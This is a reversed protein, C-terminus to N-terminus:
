HAHPVLHVALHSTMQRHSVLLEDGEGRTDSKAVVFGGRRQYRSMATLLTQRCDTRGTMREFPAERHCNTRCARHATPARLTVPPYAFSPGRPSVPISAKYCASLFAAWRQACPFNSTSFSPRSVSFLVTPYGRTIDAFASSGYLHM